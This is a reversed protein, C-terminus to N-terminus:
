SLQTRRHFGDLLNALVARRCLALAVDAGDPPRYTPQTGTGRFRDQRNPSRGAPRGLWLTLIAPSRERLPIRGSTTHHGDAHGGCFPTRDPTSLPPQAAYPGIPTPCASPWWAWSQAWSQARSRAWVPCRLWPRVRQEPEIPFRYGGQAHGSRRPRDFRLLTGGVRRQLRRRPRAPHVTAGRTRCLSRRTRGRHRVCRAVAASVCAALIAFSPAYGRSASSGSGCSGAM